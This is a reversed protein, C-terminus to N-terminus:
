AACAWSDGEAPDHVRSLLALSSPQSTEMWIATLPAKVGAPSPVWVCRLDARRNLLENRIQLM